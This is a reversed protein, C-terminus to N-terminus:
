TGGIRRNLYGNSRLWLKIRGLSNPTPGKGGRQGSASSMVQKVLVAFHTQVEQVKNALMASGNYKQMEASVVVM